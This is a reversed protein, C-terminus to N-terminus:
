PPVPPNIGRNAAREVYGISLRGTIKESGALNTEIRKRSYGIVSSELKKENEL